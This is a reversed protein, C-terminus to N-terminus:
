LWGLHMDNNDKKGTKPTKNQYVAININRPVNVTQQKMTTKPLFQGHEVMKQNLYQVKLHSEWPYFRQRDVWKEGSPGESAMGVSLIKAM